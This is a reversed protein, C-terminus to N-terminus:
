RGEGSEYRQRHYHYSCLGLSHYKNGCIRCVRETRVKKPRRYQDYHYQCLGKALRKKGCITCKLNLPKRGEKLNNIIRGDKTMHCKRCLWEWNKLNRDYVGKNALDIPPAIGCSQCMPPKPLRREVWLHLSRSGVNDGKWLPSKDEWMPNKNGRKAFSM